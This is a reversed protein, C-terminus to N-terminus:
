LTGMTDHIFQLVATTTNLATYMNLYTVVYRPIWDKPSNLANKM